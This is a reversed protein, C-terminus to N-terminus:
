SSSSLGQHSNIHEPINNRANPFKFIKFYKKHGKTPSKFLIM